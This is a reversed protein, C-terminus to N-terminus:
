RRRIAATTPRGIVWGRNRAPSGISGARSSNRCGRIRPTPGRRAHRPAALSSCRGARHRYPSEARTSRKSVHRIGHNEFEASRIQFTKSSRSAAQGRRPGSPAAPKNSRGAARRYVDSTILKAVGVDAVGHAAVPDGDIEFNASRRARCNNTKMCWRAPASTSACCRCGASRALQVPAAICKACSFWCRCM